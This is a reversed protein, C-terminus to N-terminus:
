RRVGMEELRVVDEMSESYIEHYSSGDTWLIRAITKKRDDREHFIGVIREGVRLGDKDKKPGRQIIRVKDKLISQAEEDARASSNFWVSLQCVSKGDPGQLELVHTPAGDKTQGDLIRVLKFGSNDLPTTQSKQEQKSVTSNAPAQILCPRVDALAVTWAICGGFVCNLLVWSSFHIKTQIVSEKRWRRLELSKLRAPEWGPGTKPNRCSTVQGLKQVV